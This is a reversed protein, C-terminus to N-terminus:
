TGPATPTERARQSWWLLAAVALPLALAHVALIARFTAPSVEDAGVFVFRVTSDFAAFLMGAGDVNAKVAWLGLGSWALRRGTVVLGVAAATLLAPSLARRAASALRVGLLLGAAVLLTGAGLRHLAIAVVVGTPRRGAAFSPAPQYWRTLWAGTLM